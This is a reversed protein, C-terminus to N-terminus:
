PEYVTVTPHSTGKNRKLVDELNVFGESFLAKPEESANKNEQPDMQRPNFKLKSALLEKKLRKNEQELHYIKFVNRIEGSIKPDNFYDEPSKGEKDKINIAAGRELLKKIVELRKGDIALHLPTKGSINKANIDAGYNLLVDVKEVTKDSRSACHLATEKYNNTANINLKNQKLLIIMSDKSAQYYEAAIHLSNNGQIESTDYIDAQNKLLQEITQDDGQRVAKRLATEHRNDRAHIDAGQKILLDIAERNKGYTIARHLPTLGSCGKKNIDAGHDLLLQIMQANGKSAALSILTDGFRSYPINVDFKQDELLLKLTEIESNNVAKYLDDFTANLKILGINAAKRASNFGAKHYSVSLNELLNAFEKLFCSSESCDNAYQRFLKTLRRGGLRVGPKEVIEEGLTDTYSFYYDASEENELTVFCFYNANRM